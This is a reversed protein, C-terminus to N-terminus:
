EGGRLRKEAAQHEGEDRRAGGFGLDAEYDKGFGLLERVYDSVSQGQDAALEHLCEVEHGRLRITLTENRPEGRPLRPRGPKGM